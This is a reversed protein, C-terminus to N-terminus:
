IKYVYWLRMIALDRTYITAKISRWVATEGGRIILALQQHMQLIRFKLLSAVRVKRQSGTVFIICCLQAHRHIPMGVQYINHQICKLFKLEGNFPLVIYLLSFLM